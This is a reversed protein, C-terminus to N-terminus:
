SQFDQQSTGFDPDSDHSKRECKKTLVVQVLLLFVYHRNRRRSIFLRSSVKTRRVNHFQVECPSFTEFIKPWLECNTWFISNKGSSIQSFVMRSLCTYVFLKFAWTSRDHWFAALTQFIYLVTPVLIQVIYMYQSKRWIDDPIDDQINSWVSWTTQNFNLKM